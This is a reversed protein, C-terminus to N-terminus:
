INFASGVEYSNNLVYIGKEKPPNPLGLEKQSCIMGNSPVGRLKTPKIKLGSPMTAGVKAVVVHQGAEVNPAGCVIQLVEDGVDVQCVSLKDANEHQKKEQVYGVVFKASLDFDLDDNLQHTEFLQQIERLIDETLAMKGAQLFSFHKSAQFINYGIVKNHENTIRVIDGIRDHQIQYRNGEKLPIILVDGIGDVNYFINM